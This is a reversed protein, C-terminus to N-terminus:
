EVESIKLRVHKIKERNYTYTVDITGDSRLIVAPYSFEGSSQDEFIIMEKWQEGNISGIISLKNRGGKIPNCALLRLGNDLAIWDLGSNNNPLTTGTLKSWHDGYDTSTSKAITGQTRCYMELKGNLYFITPQIANFEGNDIAQIRWDFFDQESSEIFVKWNNSSYEKSTPYLIKGNPLQLPKNKIPGLMGDALSVQGGGLLEM